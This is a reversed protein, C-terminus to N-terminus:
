ALMRLIFFLHSDIVNRLQQRDRREIKSVSMTECLLKESDIGEKFCSHTLIDIIM